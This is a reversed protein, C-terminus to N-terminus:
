WATPEIGLQPSPNKEHVIVSEKVDHMYVRRPTGRVCSNLVGRVRTFSDSTDGNKRYDHLLDSPLKADKAQQCPGRVEQDNRSEVNM